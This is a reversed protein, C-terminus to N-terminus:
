GEPWSGTYVVNAAGEIWAAGHELSVGLDGGPLEVTTTEQTHGLQFSLYATAAAGTGCALTEGVGREWVRLAIRDPAVVTAFEVNTGNPYMTDTEIVPGLSQVIDDSVDGFFAIAHPNGIDVSRFEHGEIMQSRNVWTPQGIMARVTGNDKVVVPVQGIPSDVVFRPTDVYGRDLSLRAVCRVGNGCMEAASGDSNWYRMRVMSGDIPVVELVGDAGIGRRRDCWRAVDESTVDVPGDVVVFDNGLGEMKVFKM